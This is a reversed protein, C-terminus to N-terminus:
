RGETAFRAFAQDADPAAVVPGQIFGRLALNWRRLDPCFLGQLVALGLLAPGAMHRFLAIVVLLVAFNLCAAVVARHAALWLFGFFFAAWSFGERVLIPPETGRIHTTYIRM